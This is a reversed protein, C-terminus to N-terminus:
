VSGGQVLTPADNSSAMDVVGSLRKWFSVVDHPEGDKFLGSRDGAVFFNHNRTRLVLESKGPGRVQNELRLVVDLISPITELQATGITRIAGILRKRNESDSVEGTREHGILLVHAPSNDLATIFDRVRDQSFGFDAKTPHVTSVSGSKVEIRKTAKSTGGYQTNKVEKLCGEAMHTLTDCVCMKFEGSYAVNNAFEFCDQYWTKPDPYFFTIGDKMWPGYHDPVEESVGLEARRKPDMALMALRLRVGRDTDLVAMPRWEPPAALYTSTKYTKAQGYLAALLTPKAAGGDVREM